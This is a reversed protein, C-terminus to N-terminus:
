NRKNTGNRKNFLEKTMRWLEPMIIKYPFFGLDKEWYNKKLKHIVYATLLPIAMKLVNNVIEYGINIDLLMNYTVIGSALEEAGEKIDRLVVLM